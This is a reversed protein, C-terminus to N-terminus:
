LHLCRQYQKSQNPLATVTIWFVPPLTQRFSFSTIVSFLFNMVVCKLKICVSM